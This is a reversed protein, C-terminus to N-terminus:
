VGRFQQEDADNLLCTEFSHDTFYRTDCVTELRLIGIFM